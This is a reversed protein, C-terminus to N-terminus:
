ACAAIAQDASWYFNDAGLIDYSDSRQLMEVVKPQVGAFVVKTGKKRLDRCLDTFIQMGSIDIMPVGRMSFILVGPNGLEAIAEEVKDMAAFFLPGTLYVIKMHQCDKAIIEKKAAMKQPDVDSVSVRMDSVKSIFLFASFVAGIMIAWTLDLVVTAVMTLLFSVTGTKFKHKLLYRICAWDNMRFSVVMLIGALACLPIQSMIGSLVFMSLLLGLAHIVGTLRTQCGSKIAVSTRAIAATAPIGGFFPLIINGIGQAVLERDSNCKEGKMRGASAGCLLSEVMCLMAISLAPMIFNHFEHWPLQSFMLRSEPLLTKPIDGVTALPLQWFHNVILVIILAGLSAPFKGGIKKPWFVMIAVVLCSIALTPMHIPFGNQVYQQIQSLLGGSPTAVGFFNGIQGGAIVIAIGSTFGTIVPVPIFRMLNGLKFFGALLLFIGALLGSLFVGQMGYQASLTILVAMMAGTPGSIQYSAGSFLSIIIGGIIATILGSAATAGSGVGFALALPLAVATVTFGALVDQGFKAGNYGHFERKLDQLFQQFM